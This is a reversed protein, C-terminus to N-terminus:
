VRSAFPLGSLPRATAQDVDSLFIAVTEAVPKTCAMLALGDTIILAVLSPTSPMVVNFIM